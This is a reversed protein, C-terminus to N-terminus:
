SRTDQCNLAAGRKWCHQFSTLLDTAEELVVVTAARSRGFLRSAILHEAKSDAALREQSM